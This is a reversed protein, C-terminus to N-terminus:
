SPLHVQMMLVPYAVQHHLFILLALHYTNGNSAYPLHLAARATQNTPYCRLYQRRLHVVGATQNDQSQAIFIDHKV